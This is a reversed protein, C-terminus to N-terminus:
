YLKNKAVYHKNQKQKTCFYLKKKPKIYQQTANDTYFFGRFLM